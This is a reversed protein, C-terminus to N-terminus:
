EYFQRQEYLLWFTDRGKDVPSDKADLLDASDHIYEVPVYRRLKKINHDATIDVDKDLAFVVRIGLRALILM